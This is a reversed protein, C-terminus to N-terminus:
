DETSFRLDLDVNTSIGDVSGEYTYQWYQADFGFTMADNFEALWFAYDQLEYLRMGYGYKQNFYVGAKFGGAEVTRCFVKSFDCVDSISVGNLRESRPTGEEWDFFVPCQLTYGNLATLVYKAEAEAEAASSAQSYFYVGVDLGAAQAGSINEAFREDMFLGGESSGRFGLRIIAFEIGDAKVADWDIQQQHESVDIGTSAGPYFVRGDTESFDERNHTNRPATPFVDSIVPIHKGTIGLIMIALLMLLLVAFLVLWVKLGTRMKKKKKRAMIEGM